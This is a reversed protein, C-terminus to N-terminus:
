MVIEPKLISAKIEKHPLVVGGNSYIEDCVHVDEGLITMNEVRAWQGVTSHWGIVSCSICAHKKIRVGRMVTCRTLSKGFPLPTLTWTNNQELAAIEKDMAARWEASQVAQYFHVPEVPTATVSMVFSHFTSGLNEYSLHDSIDYPSGPSPKSVVAKCSYDTLYAPPHHPRTSRRLVVPISSTSIPDIDPSSSPSLDISSPTASTPSPLVNPSTPVDNTVAPQHPVSPTTHLISTPPEYSSTSPSLTPNDVSDSYPFVLDVNYSPLSCSNSSNDKLISLYSLLQECQSQSIPCKLSQSSSGQFQSPFNQPPFTIADLQMGSANVGSQTAGYANSGNIYCHQAQGFSGNSGDSNESHFVGSVQNAMFVKGKPKYGQTEEDAEIENENSYERAAVRAAPIEEVKRILLTPDVIQVLQEAVSLIFPELHHAQVVQEFQLLHKFLNGSCTVERILHKQSLSWSIFHKFIIEVSTQYCTNLDDKFMENLVQEIVLTSIM